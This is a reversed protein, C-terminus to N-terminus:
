PHFESYKLRPLSGHTTKGASKFATKIGDNKQCQQLSHTSATKTTCSPMRYGYKRYYGYASEPLGETAYDKLVELFETVDKLQWTYIERLRAIAKQREEKVVKDPDKNCHHDQELCAFTCADVTCEQSGKCFETGADLCYSSGKMSFARSCGMRTFICLPKTLEVPCADWGAGQSVCSGGMGNCKVTPVCYDKNSNTLAGHVCSSNKVVSPASAMLKDIKTQIQDYATQCFSKFNGMSGLAGLMALEQYFSVMMMTGKANAVITDINSSDQLAVGWNTPYVKYLNIQEQTQEIAMEFTMCYLCKRLTSCVGVGYPSPLQCIAQGSRIDADSAAACDADVAGRVYTCCDGRKDSAEDTYNLCQRSHCSDKWIAAMSNIGINYNCLDTSGLYTEFYNGLIEKFECILYDVAQSIYSELKYVNWAASNPEGAEMAGMVGDMVGSAVTAYGGVALGGYDFFKSRLVSMGGKAIATVAGMTDYSGDPEEPKPRKGGCPNCKDTNATCYEGGTDRAPESGKCQHKEVNRRRRNTCYSDKIDKYRRRNPMYEKCTASRRRRRRGGLEGAADELDDSREEMSMNVSEMEVNSVKWGKVDKVSLLSPSDACEDAEQTATSGALHLYLVSVLLLKM